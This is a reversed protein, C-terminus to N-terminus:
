GNGASREIWSTGLLQPREVALQSDAQQVAERIAPVLSMPNSAARVHLAVGSEYNQALLMYYTPPRERELTTTYVTDPVVGVVSLLQHTRRAADQGDSGRTAM